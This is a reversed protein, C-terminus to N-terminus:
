QSFKSLFRTMGRNLPHLSVRLCLLAPVLVRAAPVLAALVAPGETHTLWSIINKESDEFDAQFVLLLEKVKPLSDTEIPLKYESTQSPSAVSFIDSNSSVTSSVSSSFSSSIPVQSTSGSAVSVGKSKKSTKGGEKKNEKREKNKDHKKEDNDRHGKPM